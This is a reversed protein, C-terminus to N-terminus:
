VRSSSLFTDQQQLLFIAAPHVAAAAVPNVSPPCWSPHVFPLRVESHRMAGPEVDVKLMGIGNWM